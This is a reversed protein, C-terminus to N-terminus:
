LSISFCLAQTGVSAHHLLNLNAGSFRANRERGDWTPIPPYELRSHYKLSAVYRITAASRSATNRPLCSNRRSSGHKMPHREDSTRKPTLCLPCRGPFCHFNIQFPRARHTFRAEPPGSLDRRNRIKQIFRLGDAHSCSRRCTRGWQGCVGFNGIACMRPL